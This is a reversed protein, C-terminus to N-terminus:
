AAEWGKAVDEVMGETIDKGIDKLLLREQIFTTDDKLAADVFSQGKDTIQYGTSTTKILEEAVAYRIAIAVAPDFGWATVHLTKTKAADVLKQLRDTRKLAWNFLHLRPLTSKGGRSSVRLVLLLQCIKYLPRHEVLVPAPRREFLLQRQEAGLENM